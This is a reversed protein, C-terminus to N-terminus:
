ALKLKMDSNEKQLKDAAALVKIYNEFSRTLDERLRLNLEMIEEIGVRPQGHGSSFKIHNAQEVRRELDEINKRALEPDVKRIVEAIHVNQGGLTPTERGFMNNHTM